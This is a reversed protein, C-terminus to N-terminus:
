RGAMVHGKVWRNLAPVLLLVLVAVACIAHILVNFWPTIEGSSHAAIWYPILVILGVVASAIAASEWWTAKRFLGVTAITFGVITAFPIVNTISWAFGKTSVGGSAFMSTLWLYTTGFLFLAVGGLNRITFM